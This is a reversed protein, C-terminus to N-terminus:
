DVSKHARMFVAGAHFHWILVICPGDGGGTREGASFTLYLFCLAHPHCSMPMDTGIREHGFHMSTPTLPTCLSNLPFRVASGTRGGLRRARRGEEWKCLCFRLLTAFVDLRLGHRIPRGARRRWRRCGAGFAAARCRARRSM